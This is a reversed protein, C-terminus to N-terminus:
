GDVCCVVVVFWWGGGLVLFWWGSGGDDVRRGRRGRNSIEGEGHGRLAGAMWWGGEATTRDEHVHHGNRDCDNSEARHGATRGGGECGSGSM